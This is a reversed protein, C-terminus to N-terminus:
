PSNTSTGIRPKRATAIVIDAAHRAPEATGIGMIGDLRAFAGLQRRREPTDRILPLLAAALAEPRCDQQIFEPVVNEGLVLNTLIASPVRILRRAIAAELGSVKYATVM